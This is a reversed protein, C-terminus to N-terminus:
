KWKFEGSADMALLAAMLDTRKAAMLAKIADEKTTAEAGDVIDQVAVKDEDSHDSVSVKLQTKAGKGMKVNSITNMDLESYGTEKGTKDHQLMTHASFSTGVVINDGLRTKEGDTLTNGKVKEVYTLTKRYEPKNKNDSLVFNGKDDRWLLESIKLEVNEEEGVTTFHLEIGDTCWKPNVGERENENLEVLAKGRIDEPASASFIVDKRHVRKSLEWKYEVTPDLLGKSERVEIEKNWIDEEAM